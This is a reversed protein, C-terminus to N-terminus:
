TSCFMVEASSFAESLSHLGAAATHGPKNAQNQRFNTGGLSSIPLGAPHSAIISPEYGSPLKNRASHAAKKLKFFRRPIEKRFIWPLLWGCLSASGSQGSVIRLSPCYRCPLNGGGFIAYQRAKQGPASHPPRDNSPFLIHRYGPNSVGTKSARM